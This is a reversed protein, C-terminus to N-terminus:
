ICRRSSRVGARGHRSPSIQSHSVRHGRHRGKAHEQQRRQGERLGAHGADVVTGVAHGDAARDGVEVGVHEVGLEVLGAGLHALRFVGDEGGLRQDGLALALLGSGLCHYQLPAGFQGRTRMLLHLDGEGVEGAAFLEEFDAVVGRLFDHRFQLMCM